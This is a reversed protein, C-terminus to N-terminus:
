RKASPEFAEWQKQLQAREDKSLVKVPAAPKGDASFFPTPKGKGGFAGKLMFPLVPLAASLNMKQPTGPPVPGKAFKGFIRGRIGGFTNELFKPDKVTYMNRPVGLWSTGPRTNGVPSNCCKTSFRFLHGPALQVCKLQDAGSVIKYDSPYVPIIETGGSSDLLDTRGLHIMFVQCDDCYCMLRGPTAKPFRPLEAQFQGCSCQIRM